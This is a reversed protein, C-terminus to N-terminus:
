CNYVNLTLGTFFHICLFHVPVSFHKSALCLKWLLLGLKNTRNFRNRLNGGGSSSNSSNNNNSSCNYRESWNKGMLWLCRCDIACSSFWSNECSQVARSYQKYWQEICMIAVKVVTLVTWETKGSDNLDEKNNKRRRIESTAQGIMM